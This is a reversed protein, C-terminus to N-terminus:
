HQAQNKTLTPIPELWKRPIHQNAAAKELKAWQRELGALSQRADALVKEATKRDSASRGENAVVAELTAMSDQTKEIQSRLQEADDRWKQEFPANEKTIVGAVSTGVMEEASVCQGKSKSMYCSSEAPAAGAPPSIASPDLDANSLTRAAKQVSTRRAEEQRAIEGLSQAAAPAATLLMAIAANFIRRGFM